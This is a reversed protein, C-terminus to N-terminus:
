LFHSTLKNHIHVSFHPMLILPRALVVANVSLHFILLCSEFSQLKKFKKTEKRRRCGGTESGLVQLM